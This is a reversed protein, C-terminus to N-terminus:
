VSASHVPAYVMEMPLGKSDKVPCSPLTQLSDASATATIAAVMADVADDRTVFKRPFQKLIEEIERGASPRVRELVAKRERYGETKKKSIKMPRGALAWFCIEPHVERVVCRAKKDGRLLKDVERIKPIIAFAQKPIKKGIVEYSLRKAEEYNSACLVVRVPAPFVSSQRPSGLKERALKDCERVGPPGDELGIPIDVFIRDSEEANGVLEALEKVIGWRPPASPKLRIYFWGEPCGDVGIVTKPTHNVENM